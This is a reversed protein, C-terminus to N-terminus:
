FLAGFETAYTAGAGVGSVPVGRVVAIGIQRYGRKLINARHGPSNMWSRVISRPTASSGAGWALNEGVSWARQPRIYSTDKIRSVFSIGGPATHSFYDRRVMDTAHREGALRLQRNARLRRLGHARRQRNLLCLTAREAALTSSQAPNRDAAPGCTGAASAPAAAPVAIALASLTSIALRRTM